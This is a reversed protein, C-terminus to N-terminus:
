VEETWREEITLTDGVALTCLCLRLAENKEAEVILSVFDDTAGPIHFRAIEGGPNTIVLELIQM